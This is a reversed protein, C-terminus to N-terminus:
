SILVKAIGVIALLGLLGLALRKVQAPTAIAFLRNGVHIAIFTAPVLVAARMLTQQDVLGQSAMGVLAVVDVLLFFTVTTARTTAVPLPSSLYLLIVPPGPIGGAGSLFGSMGGTLCQLGRGPVGSLAFGRAILFVSILIAASIGLRMLDADLRVLLMVGIPIGILAGLGLWRAGSWHVQKRVQPFMHVGAVFDLITAVPVVEVPVAVLNLGSIVILAYGFGTIGRVVGALFVFGLGVAWVLLSWDLFAASM